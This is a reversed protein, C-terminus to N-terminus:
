PADPDETSITAGDHLRYIGKGPNEHISRGDDTRLESAFLPVYRM